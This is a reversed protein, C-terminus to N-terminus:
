RRCPRCCRRGTPCNTSGSAPRPSSGTPTAPPSTPGSESGGRAARVPRAARALHGRGDPRLRDDRHRADGLRAGARPRVPRRHLQRHLAARPRRGARRRRVAAARRHGGREAARRRAGAAGAGPAAGPHGGARLAPPHPTRECCMRWCFSWCRTWISMRCAAAAVSRCACRSSIRCRWSPIPGSSAARRSTRCRAPIPGGRGSRGWWGGACRRYRTATWRGSSMRPAACRPSPSPAPARHRRRRAGPHPQGGPRRPQRAPPRGRPRGQHRRLRRPRHRLGLMRPSGTPCCRRGPELAAGGAVEDLAAAADAFADQGAHLASLLDALVVLRDVRGFSPAVLQARVDECMPTTVRRCCIAWRARRRAAPLFEM